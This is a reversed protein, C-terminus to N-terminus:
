VSGILKEFEDVYSEIIDLGNDWFNEKNIDVGMMKTIQYPNKSGGSKLAELYGAMFKQRDEKYKAYLASTLTEGFAYTFVYFDYHYFHTIPMWWLKHDDTLTLSDGFMKQLRKQYYEGFEATKLEGINRRHDHVETEFLYFATQRFITAFAGQIKEALLNIKVEADTQEEFLRDFVLSEAFVSAIEAVATSPYFESLPQERSLYSHIGHGLEHALTTVDIANGTFNTLIFPHRSPVSYSCWAGSVKGKRVQADIWKGDFFKNAIEFFKPNFKEFSDLVIDRAEAWTYDGSKESYVPSYRDWEFLEDYGLLDKKLRYFRECISYRKEVAEVMSKVTDPTVEYGLFTSQQPYQYGRIEDYIKSELLLTNLIFTYISSDRKLRETYVKAAKKRLKRDKDTNIIKGIESETLEKTEGGLEIEFVSNSKLEDYLRSFAMYGGQATKTLIKEESENLTYPKFVRDTQLSHRRPELLKDDMVQEAKKDDLELWEIGFWLLRTSIENSFESVGQYFKGVDEDDAHTSHMYSAYSSFKSWLNHLEEFDELAEFMLKGTLESSNIRGKYKDVIKGAMEEVDNKDKEIQPDDIGSYFESLDWEVSKVSGGGSSGDKSDTNNKHPFLVPSSKM